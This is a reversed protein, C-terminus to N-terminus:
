IVGRDDCIVVHMLHSQGTKDVADFDAGEEILCECM